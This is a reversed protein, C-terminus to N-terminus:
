FGANLEKIKQVVWGDSRKEEKDKRGGVFRPGVAKLDKWTSRRVRVSVSREVENQINGLTWGVEHRTRITRSAPFHPFMAVCSFYSALLHSFTFASIWKPQPLIYFSIWSRFKCYRRSRERFMGACFLSNWSKILNQFEMKCVRRYM